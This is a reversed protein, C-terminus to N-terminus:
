PDVPLDHYMPLPIFCIPLRETKTIGGDGKGFLLGPVNSALVTKDVVLM